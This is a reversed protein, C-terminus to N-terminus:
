IAKYKTSCKLLLCSTEIIFAGVILYLDDINFRYRPTLPLSWNSQIQQSTYNISWRDSNWSRVLVSCQFDVNKWNILPWSSFCRRIPRLYNNHRSFPFWAFFIEMQLFGSIGLYIELFEILIFFYFLCLLLMLVFTNDMFDDRLLKQTVYM